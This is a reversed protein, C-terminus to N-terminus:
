HIQCVNSSCYYLAVTRSAGLDAPRRHRAAPHRADLDAVFRTAFSLSGRPMSGREREKARARARAREGERKQRESPSTRGRRLDEPGERHDVVALRAGGGPPSAM